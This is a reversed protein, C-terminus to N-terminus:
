ENRLAVVPNRTATYWSQLNVVMLAIVFAILGALVFIWWSFETKYAFNQLWKHMVYWAIPSAIIFSVVVWKLFERNFLLIIDSNRAGMVKRIGIEKTRRDTSFVVMGLIGLVSILIALLAFSLILNRLQTEDKYTESLLDDFFKYSFERGNLYKKYTDSIYALSEKTNGKAIRVNMTNIEEPNFSLILPEIPFHLSRFHFDKVVGVIVNQGIRQGIPDAFGFLKEATQNIVIPYTELKSWYGNFDMQFFQGKIVEIKYTKAFDEDVFYYNVQLTDTGGEKSIIISERFGVGNPAYTSASVSLISPNRLLEQKFENNDYWLGTPIVVVNKDDLGLDKNHIYNLQKIFLLTAIIFFIAITFQITVLIRIFNNRSGSISGGRFIGIPNFASLYVSPYFGAIIGVTFTLFLLNIILGPSFILTLHKESMMNFVPIILVVLFLGMATALFTQLTSEMMFQSFVSTRSAGNTKKIGIEIFRESARAISLTSFNLSAMLVILFALGSFIWVYKYSGQNKDYMDYPYDSYLHIDSLPQILLKDSIKSYRSIHNSILSLFKNDIQADKRLKIYVRVSGKDHWPNSYKLIMANKDSLIYGVDITSQEPIKIVGGITYAEKRYKDSVLTKGLCSKNGFLKRATVESLVIKDPKDLATESSGEIFRFGGFVKFFDENTWCGRIEYKEGGSEKQLPSDESHYSIYTAYEIQPYDTKLTKAVPSYCRPSKIVKDGEKSLTLVRYIQKYDPHFKDYSLENFVWLYILLSAVISVTFGTFTIISYVPKRTLNRLISKIQYNM